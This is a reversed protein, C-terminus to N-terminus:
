MTQTDEPQLAIIKEAYDLASKQNHLQMETQMLARYIATRRPSDPYRVLYAELNKILTANDGGAQQVTLQLETDPDLPSDQSPTDPPSDTNSNSGSDAPAKKEQKPASKSSSASSPTQSAQGLAMGSLSFTLLCSLVPIQWRM